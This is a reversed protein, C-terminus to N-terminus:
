AADKGYNLSAWHYLVHMSSVYSQFDWTIGMSNTFVVYRQQQSPMERSGEVQERHRLLRRNLLFHLHHHLAEQIHQQLSQQGDHALRVRHLRGSSLATGLASCLYRHAKLWRADKIHLLITFIKTYGYRDNEKVCPSYTEQRRERSRCIVSIWKWWRSLLKWLLSSSFTLFDRLWLM